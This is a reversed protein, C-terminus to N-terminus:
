GPFRPDRFRRFEVEESATDLVAYSLWRDGGPERSGGLSGPKVVLTSGVREAM